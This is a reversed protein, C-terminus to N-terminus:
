PAIGVFYPAAVAGADAENAFSGIHKPRGDVRVVVQWRNGRRSVGRHASTKNAATPRNRNNESYSAPRLNLWRDNSRNRDIHDMLAPPWVGTMYLHALRSMLYTRGMIRVQRHGNSNLWGAVEGPVGKSRTIAKGIWVFDGTLPEYRLIRKLLEQTLEPYDKRQM